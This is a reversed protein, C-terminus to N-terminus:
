ILAIVDTVFLVVYFFLFLLLLLLSLLLIPVVVVLVKFVTGDEFVSLANSEDSKQPFPPPTLQVSHLSNEDTFCVNSSHELRSSVLTNKKVAQTFHKLTKM